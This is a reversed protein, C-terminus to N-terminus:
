ALARAASDLATALDDIITLDATLVPLFKAVHPATTSTSHM